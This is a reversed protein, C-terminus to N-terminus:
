HMDTSIVSITQEAARYRITHTTHYPMSTDGQIGYDITLTIRCDHAANPPILDFLHGTVIGDPVLVVASVPQPLDAIAKTVLDKIHSTLQVAAPSNGTNHLTCSITVNGGGSVADVHSVYIYPRTSVEFERNMVSVMEHTSYAYWVTIGVLAITLFISSAALWNQTKAAKVEPTDM